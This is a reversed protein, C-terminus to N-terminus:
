DHLQHHSSKYLRVGQIRVFSRPPLPKGRDCHPFHSVWLNTVHGLDCSLPVTSGPNPEGPLDAASGLCMAVM